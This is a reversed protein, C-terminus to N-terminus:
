TLGPPEVAAIVSLSVKPALAWLAPDIWRVITLLQVTRILVTVDRQISPM